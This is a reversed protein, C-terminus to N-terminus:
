SLYAIIKRTEDLLLQGSIGDEKKISCYSMSSGFLCAIPRSILGYQGLSIMIFPISLLEKALLSMKLVLLTDEYNNAKFAFKAIDAGLFEIEKFAKIVEIESPTKNMDEYGILLPIKHYKASVIVKERLKSDTLLEIDILKAGNEIAFIQRKIREEESGEFFGGFKIPRCAVVNPHKINLFFKQIDSNKKFKDIRLEICDAGINIAEQANYIAENVNDKLITVIMLPKKGILLNGIKFTKM